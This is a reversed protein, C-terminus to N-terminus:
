VYEGGSHSTIKEFSSTQIPPAGTEGRYGVATHIALYVPCIPFDVERALYTNQAEGSCKVAAWM